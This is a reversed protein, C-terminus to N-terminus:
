TAWLQVSSIGHKHPVQNNTSFYITHHMNPEFGLYPFGHQYPQLVFSAILVKDLACIFDWTAYVMPLLVYGQISIWSSTSYPNNTVFFIAINICGLIYNPITCKGCRCPSISHGIYVKPLNGQEKKIQELVM